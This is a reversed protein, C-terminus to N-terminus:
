WTATVSRMMITSCTQITLDCFKNIISADAVVDLPPCDIIIYDYRKPMEAMMEDFRDTFLLETPNPPLTGVPLVDLNPNLTGNIMVSDVDDM